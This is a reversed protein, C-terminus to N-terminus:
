QICYIHQLLNKHTMQDTSFRISPLSLFFILIGRDDNKPLMLIMRFVYKDIPESLREHSNRMIEEYSIVFIIFM